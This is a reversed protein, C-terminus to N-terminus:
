TERSWARIRTEVDLGAIMDDSDFAPTDVFVVQQSSNNLTCRVHAVKTTCPKLGKNVKLLSHDGAATNIFERRFTFYPGPDDQSAISGNIDRTPSM